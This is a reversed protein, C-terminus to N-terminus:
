LGSRRIATAARELWGPGQTVGTADPDDDPANSAANWTALSGAFALLVLFATLLFLPGAWNCLADGRQSSCGAVTDGQFAIGVWIVFVALAGLWLRGATAARKHTEADPRVGLLRMGLSGGLLWLAFLDLVAALAVVVGPIFQAAVVLITIDVAVAEHRTFRSNRKGKAPPDLRIIANVGDPRKRPAFILIVLAFSAVVGAGLWLSGCDCGHGTPAFAWTTLGALLGPLAAAFLVLWAWTPAASLHAWTRHILGGVRTM